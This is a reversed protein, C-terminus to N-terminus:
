FRAGMGVFGPGLELWATSEDPQFFTPVLFAAGAALGIAGFAVSVNAVTKFAQGRDADDQASAPCRDNPCRTELDSFISVNASGFGAFFLMGVVGVSGLTLATIRQGDGMDFPHLPPKEKKKRPPPPPAAKAAFSVSGESGAEIAVSREDIGALGRLTVKVEGPDVVIADGAERLPVTRGGVLLEGTRGGLDVKLFGVTKKLEAAEARASSEAAAYKKDQQAAEKAVEVAALAERYADAKRGLAVLERSIVLRTNASAVIDYSAQLDLLAGKHDGDKSKDAARKFLTQAAAKQEPTAASIPVGAAFADSPILLPLACYSAVLLTWAAIAGGEIRRM